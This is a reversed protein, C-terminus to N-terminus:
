VYDYEEEKQQDFMSLARYQYRILKCRLHRRDVASHSALFPVKWLTTRAVQPM